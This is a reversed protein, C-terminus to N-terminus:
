MTAIVAATAAVSAATVAGLASNDAYIGRRHNPCECGTCRKPAFIYVYLGVCMGLVVLLAIFAILVHLLTLGWVWEMDIKDITTTCLGDNTCEGYYRNKAVEAAYNVNYRWAGVAALTAVALGVVTLRRIVRRAYPTPVTTGRKQLCCTVMYFCLIYIKYFLARLVM